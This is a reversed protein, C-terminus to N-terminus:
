YELQKLPIAVVFEAGKGPASICQLKGMHKEVIIKYSISLGM